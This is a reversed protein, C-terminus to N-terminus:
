GRVDWLHTICTLPSINQTANCATWGGAWGGWGGWGGPSVLNFVKLKGPELVAFCLTTSPAAEPMSELVSLV